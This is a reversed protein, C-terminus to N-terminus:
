AGKFFIISPFIDLSTSLLLFSDAQPETQLIKIGFPPSLGIEAMVSASYLSSFSLYWVPEAHFSKTFKKFFSCFYYSVIGIM